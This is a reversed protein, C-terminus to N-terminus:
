MTTLMAALPRVRRWLRWADPRAIRRPSGHCGDLIWHHLRGSALLGQLQGLCHELGELEQSWLGPDVDLVAPWLRDWVVLIPGEAVAAALDGEVGALPYLVAGARRALGASLPHDAFVSRHRARPRLNSLEGGGWPWIGSVPLRGEAERQRNPEAQAFLMQAENLVCAWRPADEGTPLSAAVSRGVVADLPRTCLKPAENLRLYWRGPVPAELTLGQAAFHGNFLAVLADAEPQTLDLRRADYLLLHGRDLRLYVPDAHLRYGGQDGLPADALYCLPASPAARGLDEGGDEGLGLGFAAFLSEILGVVGGPLPTGRSLLRELVPVAPIDEPSIPVPGLLGPVLLDLSRASGGVPGVGSAGGSRNM